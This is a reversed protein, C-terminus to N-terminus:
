RWLRQGERAQMETPNDAWAEVPPPAIQPPPQTSESSARSPPRLHTSRLLCVATPLPCYASPLLRFRPSGHCTLWIASCPTRHSQSGTAPHLEAKGYGDRQPDVPESARRVELPQLRALKRVM